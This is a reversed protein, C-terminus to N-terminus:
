PACFRTTGFPSSALRRCAAALLERFTHESVGQRAARDVARYIFVLERGAGGVWAESLTDGAFVLKETLRSGPLTPGPESGLAPSSGAKLPSRDRLAAGGAAQLRAWRRRATTEDPGRLLVERQGSDPVEYIRVEFNEAPRFSIPALPDIELLAVRRSVIRPRSDCDDIATGQLSWLGEFRAPRSDTDAVPEMRVDIEPPAQDASLVRGLSGLWELYARGAFETAQVVDIPGGARFRGTSAASMVWARGVDDFGGFGDGRYIRAPSTTGVLDPRGDRDIDQLSVEPANRAPLGRWYEVFTGRGNSGFTFISPGDNRPRQRTFVEASGDLDLDVIALDLVAGELPDDLLEAAEALHGDPQVRHWALTHIEGSPQYREYVVDDIGDGDLDGVAVRPTGGARTFRAEDVPTFGGDHAILVRLAARREPLTRIALLDPRDDADLRAPLIRDATTGLPLIRYPEFSGDGRGRAWAITAFPSPAPQAVLDLRGDGELDLLRPSETAIPPQPLDKLTFSGDGRALGLRALPRWQGDILADDIGDGDVDGVDISLGADPVESLALTSVPALAFSRSGLGRRVMLASTSEPDRLVLDVTGDADADVAGALTPAIPPRPGAQLGDGQNWVIECGRATRSFARGVPFALDEAGDGDLDGVRARDARTGPQLQLLTEVELIGNGSALRHLNARRAPFRPFATAFLTAPAGPRPRLPVLTGPTFPLRHLELSLTLDEEASFVGLEKRSPSSDFVTALEEVGDGDLDAAVLPLGASRGASARAAPVLGRGPEWRFVELRSEPCHSGYSCLQWLLALDHDGDGDIDALTPGGGLRGSLDLSDPPGAYAGQDDGLWIDLRDAASTDDSWLVLLDRMGDGDVDGAVLRTPQPSREPQVGLDVIEVFRLGGDGDAEVRYLPYGSGSDELHRAVFVPTPRGQGELDLATELVPRLPAEFAQQPFDPADLVRECSSDARTTM